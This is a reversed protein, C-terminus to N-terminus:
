DIISQSRVIIFIGLLTIGLGAWYHISLAHKFYWKDILPTIVVAMMAIPYAISIPYKSLLWIWFLTAFAYISGALYFVPSSLLGTAVDKLSRGSQQIAVERFLLQGVSMILPFLGMLLIDRFNLM